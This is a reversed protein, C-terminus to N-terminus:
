KIEEIGDLVWFCGGKRLINGNYIFIVIKKNRL